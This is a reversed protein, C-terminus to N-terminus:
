FFHRPEEAWSCKQHTIGFKYLILVYKEVTQNHILTYVQYQTYLIPVQRQCHTIINSDQFDARGHKLDQMLLRDLLLHNPYCRKDPRSPVLQAHRNTIKPLYPVKSTYQVGQQVASHKQSSKSSMPSCSTSLENSKMQSVETRWIRFSSEMFKM